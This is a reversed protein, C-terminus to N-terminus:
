SNLQEFSDALASRYHQWHTNDFRVPLGGIGTVGRAFNEGLEFTELGVFKALEAGAGNPDAAVAQADIVLHEPGAGGVGFLTHQRAKALWETAGPLDSFTAAPLWGFALWDLLAARADRDAVIIKTGPMIRHILTLLRADWRPLWDIQLRDEPIGMAEVPGLYASRVYDIEEQTLEADSKEFAPMGFLDRRDRDAVRDRPVALSAQDALLAAIREVGSGPTGILLVPARDWSPGAPQELWRNIADAPIDSLGHRLGQQERQAALFHTTAATYEGNHDAVRGLYNEVLRRQGESLDETALADLRDAAADYDENRLAERIRVLSMEPNGPTKALVASVFPEAAAYNGVQEHLFGLNEVYQMEDPESQHMWENDVIALDLLNLHTTLLVRRNRWFGEREGGADVQQNILLLADGLRQVQGYCFLLAEVVKDWQPTGILVKEYLPIAEDYRAQARLADAIGVDASRELGPQNGLRRFQQEAEVPRGSDLMLLGLAHHVQYFNPRLALANNFAQEAFAHNGNLHLARGLTFQILPDRQELQAAQSAHKIASDANGADCALMALGAMAHADDGARLATRFHQDALRSNGETMAIHGLTTHANSQNPDLTLARTLAERSQEFQQSDFHIKGLTLLPGPQEPAAEHARELLEIAAARDGKQYQLTGFLRLAECHNPHDALFARYGTEAADLNGQRHLEITPQLM